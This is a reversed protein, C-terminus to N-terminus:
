NKKFLKLCSWGHQNLQVLTLSEGDFKVTIHGKKNSRNVKVMRGQGNPRLNPVNNTLRGECVTYDSKGSIRILKHSQTAHTEDVTNM